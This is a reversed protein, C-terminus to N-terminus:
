LKYLEKFWKVFNDAHQSKPDLIRKTLAIGPNQGPPDQWALWTYLHAKPGHPDRVNAGLNIAQTVADGAHAWLPESEKPVLHRLFTELCGEAANNPMVWVGLRKNNENEAVLVGTPLDAPLAPFAKLCANRIRGYRSEPKTDADLMLGLVDIDSAKLLLALYEPRLIEEDSKGLDIWVPAEYKSQPWTVHARMLGVVSFLDDQGEVILRNRTKVKL